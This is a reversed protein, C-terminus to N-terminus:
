KNYVFTYEERSSSIAAIKYGANNMKRIFDMTKAIGINKFRHHLEVAIQPINLKSELIEDIVDFETGEIDMKLLNVKTHGLETLIASFRKVPVSIKEGLSDEKYTSGSVYNPNKPLFFDVNGNEKYIGYPFFIFKEINGNKKVYNISKPTPDFAFVTCSFHKILAKDFPIEEGVGFSYVISNEDLLEPVVYFGTDKNGMWSVNVNIQPRVWVEKRQLLRYIFSLNSRINM